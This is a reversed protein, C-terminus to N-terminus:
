QANRKWELYGAVIDAHCNKPACWCGLVADPGIEALAKDRLHKQEPAYFYAAFKAIVTDRDSIWNISFPNKWPSVETHYPFVARGMYIDYPEKNVHVVKIM